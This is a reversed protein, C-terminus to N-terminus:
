RRLAFFMGGILGVFLNLGFAALSFALANSGSVDVFSFFYVYLSERVGIGNITIPLLLVVLTVPIICFFYLLPVNFDLSKSILFYYFIVNIQLLLSALFTIFLANGKEKLFSFVDYASQLKNGLKQMRIRHLLQLLIGIAKKNIVFLLGGFVFLSFLTVVVIVTQADALLKYGVIVAAQALVALAIIGMMREALVTVVSNMKKQSLIAVDYARVADGGITSPLFNNFFHGVFLSVVLTKFPINIDQVSLLFKWRIASIVKGVFALLLALILWFPKAIKIADWIEGM